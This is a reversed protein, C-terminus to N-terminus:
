QYWNIKVTHLGASLSVGTGTVTIDAGAGALVSTGDIFLEVADNIQNTQFTYTGATVINLFGTWQADWTNQDTIGPPLVSAGGSGAWTFNITPDIHTGSPTGSYDISRLYNLTQTEVPIASTLTDFFKGTLGALYAAGGGASGDVTTIGASPSNIG